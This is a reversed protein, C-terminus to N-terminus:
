TLNHHPHKLDCDLPFLKMNFSEKEKLPNSMALQNETKKENEKFFESFIIFFCSFNYNIIFNSSKGKYQKQKASNDMFQISFKKWSLFCLLLNLYDNFPNIKVSEKLIKKMDKDKITFKAKFAQIKNMIKTKKLVSLHFEKEYVELKKLANESANELGLKENFFNKMTAHLLSHFNVFGESDSRIEMKMIKGAAEFFNDTRNIGLPLGLFRFFEMLKIRSIKDSKDSSNQTHESFKSWAKKFEKVNNLFIIEPNYPDKHLNEFQTIIVLTLVNLLIIHILVMFSIFFIISIDAILLIFIHFNNFIISINCSGCLYDHNGCKPMFKITDILTSSWNEGTACVFLVAIAKVVNSFNLKHDLAKSQNLDVDHFFYVALYAYILIMLFALYLINLIMPLKFTITQQMKRFIKFRHFLRFIALIKLLHIIRAYTGLNGLFEQFFLELIMFFIYSIGITFEVLNWNYSLYGQWTFAYIKLTIELLFIITIILYFLTPFTVSGIPFKLTNSNNNNLFLLVIVMLPIINMIANYHYSTIIEILKKRTGTAMSFHDQFPETKLIKYQMQVWKNQNENLHTQSKGGKQEAIQFKVFMIGLFLNILFLVSIFIFAYFYMYSSYSNNQQSPGNTSIDSNRAIDLISIWNDFTAIVFLTLLANWITEFNLDNTIWSKHENICKERTTLFNYPDECYGFRSQYLNVGM